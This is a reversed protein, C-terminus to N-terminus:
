EDGAETIEAGEDLFLQLLAVDVDRDFKRGVRRLVGVDGFGYKRHLRLSVENDASILAILTLFGRARADAILAALLAQGIGLGRREQHVYVSNEATRRYGPKPNYPSLTAYGVVSGDEMEAILAPYPDGNHADMWAAQQQPTRGATDLTATTTEVAQNYIARLAEADDPRAPRIQIRSM